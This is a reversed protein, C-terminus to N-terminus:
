FVLKCAGPKALAAATPLLGFPSVVGAPPIAQDTFDSAAGPIIFDANTKSETGAVVASATLRLNIWPVYSEAYTLSIAALGNATQVNGPSVAVVNGPELVGDANDDEGADLIGNRNVDENRCEYIPSQYVYAKVLDAWVLQGTRYFQPLAKITLTVANVAIGNSDTVYAVWDKKYTQPDINNVVNGTGLAIFLAAQNVTLSARGYVSTLNSVTAQLVIGDNATSESGSIYNVSAKGSADTIASAQQLNGGSPDSIRTFNVTVGPVPNGASDAVKALVQAQNTTSGSLNPALATPNIQLVLSSPVTGVVVLPLTTSTAGSNVSAQITLPGASLSTVSVQATGASDTNASSSSLTGGTSAFTVTTGAQPVGGAILRVSVVQAINVPVVTSPAPSVFVFNLNSIALPLQPAVTAGAGSFSLSDTGANVAVYNYTVTGTSNTINSGSATLSNNLTSVGTITVGPIVNSRSDTAIVNFPASNGLILSTPGSLTLRTGTIPLAISNSIAGSSVSVTAVRNSRDAGASLTATALGSSDTVTSMNSLTGTNSQFAVSAGPLANNKADKVFASILVGGGGTGVSTSDAIVDITTPVTSTPSSVVNLTATGTVSGSTATLTIARNTPDSGIGVTATLRGAANTVSGITGQITVVANANAALTVPASGVANNNSDLAIVTATVTSVASNLITPSSLTVVLGSVTATGGGGGGGGGPGGFPPTGSGDTGGGGGGCAVLFTSILALGLLRLWLVLGNAGVSKIGNTM